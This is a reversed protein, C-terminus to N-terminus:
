WKIEKIVRKTTRFEKSSEVVCNKKKKKKIWGKKESLRIFSNEISICLYRSKRDLVINMWTSYRGKKWRENWCNNRSNGEGRKRYRRSRSVKVNAMALWLIKKRQGKGHRIKNRGRWENGEIECLMNWNQECRHFFISLIHMVTQRHDWYPLFFFMTSAFSIKLRM